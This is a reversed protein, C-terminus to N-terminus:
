RVSEAASSALARLRACHPLALRPRAAAAVARALSSGALMSHKTSSTVPVAQLRM